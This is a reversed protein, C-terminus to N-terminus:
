IDLLGNLLQHMKSKNTKFINNKHLSCGPNFDHLCETCKDISAYEMYSYLRGCSGCMVTNEEEPDVPEFTHDERIIGDWM